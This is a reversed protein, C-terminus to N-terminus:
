WQPLTFHQKATVAMNDRRWNDSAAPVIAADVGSGRGHLQVGVKQQQVGCRIHREPHRNKGARIRAQQAGDKAVMALPPIVGAMPKHGMALLRGSESQANLESVSCVAFAIQLGKFGVQRIFPRQPIRQFRVLILETDFTRPTNQRQRM